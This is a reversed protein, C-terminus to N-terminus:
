FQGRRMRRIWLAMGGLLLTGAFGGVLCALLFPLLAAPDSGAAATTTHGVHLPTM